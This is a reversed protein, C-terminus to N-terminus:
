YHGPAMIIRAVKKNSGPNATLTKELNEPKEGDVFFFMELNWNLMSLRCGGGGGGGGLFFGKWIGILFFFVVGGGGGGDNFFCSCSICSGRWINYM